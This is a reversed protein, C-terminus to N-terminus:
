PRSRNATSRVRPRPTGSPRRKVRPASAPRAVVAETPPSSARSAGAADARPAAPAAIPCAPASVTLSATAPTAIPLTFSIATGAPGSEAWIRGGHAQVFAKCIALGLGTGGTQHRTHRARYFREFIHPLDEAGIGPGDDAVVVRVMDADQAENERAASVHVMGDSYVLANAVLNHIVVEIRAADVRVPPLDGPVDLVIRAAQASDRRLADAALVELRQPRRRLELLGAEIRTLDLLNNVLQALNDAEASITSLFHRQDDHSWAVDDQLLTSAHGKIAALPTRLEHGVAALLTTKFEDVERERTVDRLLLGRGIAEGGEGHVDFLRLQIARAGHEQRTELLWEGVEGTEARTLNRHYDDPQEALAALREHATTIHLGDLAREDPLGLLARAGPNAYLVEGAPSTLLLGDRMSGVIAGLTRKEAMAEHYLRENERAVERLREDSREYLVAHEWALTAYNAFTLLLDVENSTFTVPERRHVVLVVGGVRQSIIPIALVARFGEARSVKPFTGDGHDIMQVPRGDHLARVAPVGIDDPHVRVTREYGDARGASVLPRLTGDDDPVLVAAAQVDVLRRVERIVTAGVARPDLSNVVANSTELLTRLEALQVVVERELGQLSRALKGIEDARGHLVLSPLRAADPSPLRNHRAALTHLPRVVRRLLVMWFLLGGAAFLVTALLLWLGFNSTAAAVDSAPQQVVVAWGVDMVPVSSYLWGGKGDPGAAEYTATSGALAEASGPLRTTAPQLLHDHAPDPGAILLGREDLMSITIHQGQEAQAAVMLGLPQSLSDLLLSTALMGLFQGHGGHIAEAVTAVDHGTSPDVSGGEALPEDSTQVRQFLPLSAYNAGLTHLNQHAQARLVGSADLFYMHDIDPRGAMFATFLSEMASPDNASGAVDWEIQVLERETESITTYTDFAVEQALSLDTTQIQARIQRQGVADIEIGSGIVILVFVLYVGILQALLSRRVFHIMALAKHRLREPVTITLPNYM